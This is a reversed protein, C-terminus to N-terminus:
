IIAFTLKKFYDKKLLIQYFNIRDRVKKYTEM